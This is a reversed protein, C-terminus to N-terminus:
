EISVQTLVINDTPMRDVDWQIPLLQLEDGTDKYYVAMRLDYLGPPTNPDILLQYEESYREGVTWATTPQTPARDLQAAKQWLGNILQISVTYDQKISQSSQWDLNVKLTKGRAIKLQNLKYNVLHMAPGFRVDLAPATAKPQLAIAGLHAEGALRVGSKVDYVGVALSLQDPTYAIPSLAIQYEERWSSGQGLTTTSLLGRGPFANRQAVIRGGEGLVHIYIAHDTATSTEGAWYLTLALLEGPQLTKQAMAYGLLRLHGGFDVDVPHEIATSTVATIPAPLHYAPAIWLLPASGSLAALGIILAVGLCKKYFDTKQRKEPVWAVLGGLLGLSLVAIAPFLLRGQSAPTLSTWRVLAVLVAVPWGCILLRAATLRDWRWPYLAVGAESVWHYLQILWGIGAILLLTNLTQYLWGPLLVNFWGFIGWYSQLLSPLEQSFNPPYLRRGVIALFANFGLLDGYLMLNRAYWWGAILLVPIGWALWYCACAFVGPGVTRRWHRPKLLPLQTQWVVWFSTAAAFPLLAIASAKTLVACGIVVGLYVFDRLRPQGAKILRVMLWLALTCLPIVLADNNVAASVFIFMPTFAHVATAGTALWRQNPLLETALRWTLYVACIGYFVSLLRAWHIALTAGHWPFHERAAAHIIANVNSGDPHAEGLAAYPNLHTVTALDSRDLPRILLAALFYALPPQSGEQAWPGVPAGEVVPQIPLRWTSALYNVFHFHYLEDPAEFVPTVVSYTVALLTFGLLIAMLGVQKSQALMKM